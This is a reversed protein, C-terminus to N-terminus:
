AGCIVRLLGSDVPGSLFQHPLHIM